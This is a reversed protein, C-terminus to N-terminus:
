LHHLSRQTGNPQPPPQPPRGFQADAAKQPVMWEQPLMARQILTTNLVSDTIGELLCASFVSTTGPAFESAVPNRRFFSHGENIIAWTIQTCVERTYANHITFCEERDLIHFIKLLEKYYDCHDGFMTGLLGCYTGINLKLDMYNAAPEVTKGCIKKLLDDLSRTRKTKPLQRRM